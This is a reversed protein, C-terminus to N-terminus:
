KYLGARDIREIEALILAAARVLDHRPDKPKWWHLEWPWAVGDDDIDIPDQFQYDKKNNPDYRHQYAAYQRLYALAARALEQNIHADDHDLTFGEEREQHRREMLVDIYASM